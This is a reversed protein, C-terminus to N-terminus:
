DYNDVDRIQLDQIPWTYSMFNEDSRTVTKINYENDSSSVEKWKFVPSATAYGKDIFMEYIDNMKDLDILPLSSGEMKLYICRKPNSQLSIVYKISYTPVEGDEKILTMDVNVNEVLKAGTQNNLTISFTTNYPTNFTNVHNFGDEIEKALSGEYYTIFFESGDVMVEESWADSGHEYKHQRSEYTAMQVYVAECKSTENRILRAASTLTLKAQQAKGDGNISILSSTAALVISMSVTAAVIFAVLAILVSVGSKSQLKNILKNHM